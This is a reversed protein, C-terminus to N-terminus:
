PTATSTPQCLNSVLSVAIARLVWNYHETELNWIEAAKEQKYLGVVLIEWSSVLKIPFIFFDTLLYAMITSHQTVIFILKSNHFYTNFEAQKRPFIM